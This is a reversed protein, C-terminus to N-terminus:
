LDKLTKEILEAQKKTIEDGTNDYNMLNGAKNAGQM